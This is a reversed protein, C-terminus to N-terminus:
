SATSLKGITNKQDENSNPILMRYSGTQYRQKM